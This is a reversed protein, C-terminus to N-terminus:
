NSWIGHGKERLKLAIWQELFEAEKRKKIPNFKKYIEPVLRIGYKKAYRNAKYGKKHQKFRIVPDNASQGVYFCSPRRNMNPNKLRFKRSNLVKKDLEIVYVFYPM